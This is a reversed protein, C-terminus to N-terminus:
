VLRKREQGTAADQVKEPKPTPPETKSTTKMLEQVAGANRPGVIGSAMSEVMAHMEPPLAQVMDNLKQTMEALEKKNRPKQLMTESLKETLAPDINRQGAMAKALLSSNNLRRAKKELLKYKLMDKPTVATSMINKKMTVYKQSYM